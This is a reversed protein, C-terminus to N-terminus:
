GGCKQIISSLILRLEKAEQALLSREDELTEQDGCDVLRLFLYSEKAEKRSIRLRMLFDRKGLGDNAEIYNAAVSGSARILQPLDEANGESKPLLKAFARVDKAFQYTREELDRPEKEKPMATGSLRSNPRQFKFSIQFNTQSINTVCSEGSM